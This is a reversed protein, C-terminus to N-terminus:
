VYWPALPLPAAWLAHLDPVERPAPLVTPPLRPSTPLPDTSWARRTRPEEGVPEAPGGLGLVRDIEASSLPRDADAVAILVEAYLEIEDLAVHDHLHDGRHPDLSDNM